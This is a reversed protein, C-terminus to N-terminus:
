SRHTSATSSPFKRNEQISRKYKTSFNIPGGNINSLCELIEGTYTDRSAKMSKSERAGKGNLFTLQTRAYRISAFDDKFDLVKVSIM